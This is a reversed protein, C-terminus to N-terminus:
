SAVTNKFYDLITDQIENQTAKSRGYKKQKKIVVYINGITDQAWDWFPILWHLDM